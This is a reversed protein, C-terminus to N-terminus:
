LVVKELDMDKIETGDVENIIDGEMIGARYAPTDELIRIIVVQGEDDLSVVVGIGSTTGSYSETIKNYEETTYYEAYRDDLVSLM